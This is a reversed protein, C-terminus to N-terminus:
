PIMKIYYSILLLMGLAFAVICKKWSVFVLLDPNDKYYRVKIKDGVRAAMPVQIRGTPTRMTDDLPFSVRAWKSNNKKSTENIAYKVDMIVADVERTKGRLYLLLIFNGLSFVFLLVAIVIVFLGQSKM